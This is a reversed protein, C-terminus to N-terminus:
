NKPVIDTSWSSGGASGEESFSLEIRYAALRAVHVDGTVNVDITPMLGDNNMYRYYHNEEEFDELYPKLSANYYANVTGIVTGTLTDEHITITYNTAHKVQLIKFDDIIVPYNETNTAIFDGKKDEASEDYWYYEYEYGEDEYTAFDSYSITAVFKTDIIELSESLIEIKSAIKHSYQVITIDETLVYPDDQPSIVAGLKNEATADYYCYSYEYRDLDENIQIDTYLFSTKDSLTEITTTVDEIIEDYGLITITYTPEPDAYVVNSALVATFALILMLSLVIIIMRFQQRSREM